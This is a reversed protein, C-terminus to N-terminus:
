RRWKEELLKKLKDSFGYPYLSFVDSLRGVLKHFIMDATPSSQELLWNFQGRIKSRMKMKEMKDVRPVLNIGDELTQLIEKVDRANLRTM